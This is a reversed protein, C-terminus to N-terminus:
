KGYHEKKTTWTKVIMEPEYNRNTTIKITLVRTQKNSIVDLCSMVNGLYTDRSTKINKSYEEQYGNLEETYVETEIKVLDDSQPITRKVKGHQINQM